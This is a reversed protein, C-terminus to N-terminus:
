PGGRFYLAVAQARNAVGIKGYLNKLHFKVTNVSIDFERAIASNTLGDALAALLERERATLADFPDEQPKSMDVFPFAMRGEAVAIVTELLIEPKDRKSCFGAGGKLMVQRPVSASPEGTYVVIRPADEREGLAELVEGGDMYPMQWGIVGVDFSLRDVAEMFREGDAATALLDFRDDEGFMQTLGALVLPSKDAIVLDIIKTQM